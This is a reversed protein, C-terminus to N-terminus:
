KLELPAEFAGKDTVVTLTAAVAKPAAVTGNTSLTLEFAKGDTSPAAELYLPEPAEAFIERASDKGLYELRWSLSEGPRRSLGLLAKAEGATLKRPVKALAAAIDALFPSAGSQPLALALRAKTPLCIRDCAAYDLSLELVVPAEPNRPKVRLPFVVKSDYGAVISGAEEIRKPAPYLPEVSDVNQSRKFDFRPPVGAEGPQRWYTLAKPKLDIELAVLYTGDKAPEGAILRASSFESNAADSAFPSAGHAAGAGFLAGAFALRRFWRFRFQKVM